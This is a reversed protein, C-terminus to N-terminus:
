TMESSRMILPAFRVRQRTSYHRSLYYHHQNKGEKPNLIDERNPPKGPPLPYGWFQWRWASLQCCNSAHMQLEPYLALCPPPLLMCLANLALLHSSSFSDKTRLFHLLLLTLSFLSFALLCLSFLFPHSSTPPLLSATGQLVVPILDKNQKIWNIFASKQRGWPM